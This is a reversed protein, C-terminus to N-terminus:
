HIKSLEFFPALQNIFEKKELYQKLLDFANRTIELRENENQLYYDIKEEFDSYDWKVPVYTRYPNFIDPRTEIHSMDPKILLAGMLVAEYDRWCVEGYGFPSFCLKSRSLEQLYQTYPVGPKVLIKRDSLKKVASLAEKRMNAYWDVGKSALRAHVDITRAREIFQTNLFGPILNSSTIFSPGVILKKLFGSPIQFTVEPAVLGYKKICYDTINTDGLTPKGYYLRDKLIHKKVYLDIYDNSIKAYRLDTPAFWDFYVLCANPYTKKISKILQEFNNDTLNFHTQLGVIDIDNRAASYKKKYTKSSTIRIETNYQSKLENKYFFFPYLQSDPIIGPENLFLIKKSSRSIYPIALQTKNLLFQQGKWKVRHIKNKLYSSM